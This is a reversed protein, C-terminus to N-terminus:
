SLARFCAAMVIGAVLAITIAYGKIWPQKPAVSKDIFFQTAFAVVVAIMHDIGMMVRIVSFNGFLGISAAAGLLGLWAVDGGSLKVRLTDLQPTFISCVILWGCGNVAMILFAMAVGQFNFGAGGLELGLANAGITAATLETQPAGIISLRQWTIPGGILAMMSVMVAFGAMAPGIATVAGDKLATNLKHHPFGINAAEKYSLRVFLVSQIVVWVVMTGCIVWMFQSNLIQLIEAMSIEM